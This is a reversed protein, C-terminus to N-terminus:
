FAFLLALVGTRATQSQIRKDDDTNQQISLIKQMTYFQLKWSVNM